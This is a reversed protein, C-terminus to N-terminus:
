HINRFCSITFVLTPIPFVRHGLDHITQPPGFTDQQEPNYTRTKDGSWLFPDPWVVGFGQAQSHQFRMIKPTLVKTSFSDKQTFIVHATHNGLLNANMREEVNWHAGSLM